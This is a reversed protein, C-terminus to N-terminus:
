RLIVAFRFHPTQGGGQDLITYADEYEAEMGWGDLRTACGIHLALRFETKEQFLATTVEVIEEVRQPSAGHRRHLDLVKYVPFVMGSAIEM